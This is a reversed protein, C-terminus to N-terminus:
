NTTQSQGRCRKHHKQGRTCSPQNVCTNAECQNACLLVTINDNLDKNQILILQPAM